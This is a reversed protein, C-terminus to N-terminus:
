SESLARRILRQRQWRRKREIFESGAIRVEEARKEEKMTGDMSINKTHSGKKKRIGEM